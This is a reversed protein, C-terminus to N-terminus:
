SVILFIGFAGLEVGDTSIVSAVEPILLSAALTPLAGPIIVGIYEYADFSM